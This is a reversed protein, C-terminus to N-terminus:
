GADGSGQSGDRRRWSELVSEIEDFRDRAFELKRAVAELEELRGIARLLLDAGGASVMVVDAFATAHLVRLAAIEQATISRPPQPEKIRQRTCDAEDHLDGCIGCEGGM